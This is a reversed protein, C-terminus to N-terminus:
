GAIMLEQSARRFLVENVDISPMGEEIFARIRQSLLQAPECFEVCLGPVGSTRRGTVRTNIRMRSGDVPHVVLLGLKTGVECVASTEVFVGGFFVDVHLLEDLADLTLGRWTYEVWSGARMLSSLERTQREEGEMLREMFGEWKEYNELNSEKLAYAVGVGAKGDINGHRMVEATFHVFELSDPLWLRLQLTDGIEFSGEDILFAGTLSVNMTVTDCTRHGREAEVHAPIRATTRKNRRLAAFHSLQTHM